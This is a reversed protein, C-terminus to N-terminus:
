QNNFKKFSFMEIKRNFALPAGSQEYMNKNFHQSIEGVYTLPNEAACWRERETEQINQSHGSRMKM